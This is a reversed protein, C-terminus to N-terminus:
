RWTNRSTAKVARWGKLRRSRWPFISKHRGAAENCICVSDAGAARNGQHLIWPAASLLWQNLPYNDQFNLNILLCFHYSTYSHKFGRGTLLPSQSTALLFCPSNSTRAPSHAQPEPLLPLWEEKPDTAPHKKDSVSPIPSEIV